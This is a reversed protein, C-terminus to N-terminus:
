ALTWFDKRCLGRAACFDCARGEGLAPMAAGAAVRDMDQPLGESLADRAALVEAQELWAAGASGEGLSLYAARLTEEPLLAAYFALQTDELPHKIREETTARSETKYDIVVAMAGEPSPQRDIRDLTGRIRWRGLTAERNVEGVDFRPGPQGPREEFGHLWALYGERLSPWAARFPLFAAADLGMETAVQAALADVAARDEDLPRPAPRAEHFAKLMHHLWNGMDRKDPANDLEPLDLLGLQRLAFFRYPCERLDSYSSASLSTPLLGPASPLPPSVACASLERPQRVDTAAPRGAARQAVWLQLVWPNPLVPEDGEHERWLVHLRPQCLLQEWAARASAALAERGPLGLCARQEATWLGPPEPAASLHLDDCGAAVVSAFPRALLQAMPLVVVPAGAPSLPVFNAAELVDRVWATFASLGLKRPAALLWDAAVPAGDEPLWLAQLAAQGARDAALEDWLGWRRLERALDTLWGGLPRPAHLGEFCTAMGEPLAARLQDNACVAAWSAVELRRWQRELANVQEARWCPMHKFADLVDDTSARPACGRLVALLRAAAQSTSLRWGTEDRLPLGAGQLLASIRRTLVRDQAVLAVPTRGAAIEALVCAAARQAEDQADACPHLEAQHETQNAAGADASKALPLCLAREGWAQALAQGLPDPLMGQLLVLADLGQGPLAHRWLVDTAFTSHGLWEIAVAQVLGEWAAVGGPLLGALQERQTSAWGARAEPRVASALPALQTAADLLQEILATLMDPPLRGGAAQELLRQALVRNRAPDGSHDLEGPEHPGLQQAWNRTTEFRPVFGGSAGAGERWAQRAQAMLQAYPVLVLCRGAHAGCRLLHQQIAAVQRAWHCSLRHSPDAPPATM